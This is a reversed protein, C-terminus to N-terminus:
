ILITFLFFFFVVLATAIMPRPLDICEVPDSPGTFYSITFEGVVLFGGRKNVVPIVMNAGSDLNSQVFLPSSIEQSELSIEFVKVDRSHKLNSHLMVLLPNEPTEGGWSHLLVM